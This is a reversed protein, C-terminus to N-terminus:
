HKNSDMQDWCCTQEITIDQTVNKRLHFHIILHIQFRLELSYHSMNNAIQLRQKFASLHIKNALKRNILNKM